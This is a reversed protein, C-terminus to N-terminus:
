WRRCSASSRRTTSAAEGDTGRLPSQPRARLGRADSPAGVEEAEEATLVRAKPEFYVEHLKDILPHSAM